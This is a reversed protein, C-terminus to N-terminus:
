SYAVSREAISVAAEPKEATKEPVNIGVSVKGETDLGVTTPIGHIDLGVRNHLGVDVLVSQVGPVVADVTLCGHM